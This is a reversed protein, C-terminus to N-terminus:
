PVDDLTEEKRAERRWAISPTIDKRPKTGAPLTELEEVSRSKRSVLWKHPNSQGGAIQETM